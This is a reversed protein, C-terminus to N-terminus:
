GGLASTFLVLVLLFAVGVCLSVTAVNIWVAKWESVPRSAEVVSHLAAAIWVEARISFPFRSSSASMNSKM